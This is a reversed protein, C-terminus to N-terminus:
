HGPTTRSRRSAYPLRITFTAGKGVASDVDVEGGHAQVVGRVIWLGLGLGGFSEISARRAYRDFIQVKDEASIGIGHDGVTVEACPGANKVAVEVPLGHGFKFANALLEHVAQEVRDVDWCGTVAADGAVTVTCGAATAVSTLSAVSKRVLAALDMEVPQLTLAEGIQAVDVLREALRALRETQAMVMSLRAATSRSGSAARTDALPDGDANARAMLSALQLRLVTLPTRLEHGAACLFTDRTKLAERLDGEIAKRRAVENELAQARQQLISIARMQSDADTLALYTETPVTRSHARCVNDFGGADHEHQFNDMGYGCLLSFSHRAATANWIEELEIAAQANGARWLRDVMEGYARVHGTASRAIAAKLVAGVSKQFAPRSPRGDVMLRELTEDADLSVLFGSASLGDPDVGSDKLARAVAQRHADTAVVIVPEKARLGPLLYQTVKEILFDDHEYFQVVHEPRRPLGERSSDTSEIEQPSLVASASM